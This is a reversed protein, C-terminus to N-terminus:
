FKVLMGTQIVAASFSDGASGYETVHGTYQIFTQLKDTTNHTYGLLTYSNSKMSTSALTDHHESDVSAMGYGLTILGKEGVATQFTLWYGSEKIEDSVVGSGSMSVAAGVGLANLNNLAQGQYFEGFLKSKGFQTLFYVKNFYAEKNGGSVYGDALEYNLTAGHRAFGVTFQDAKYHVDIAVGPSSGLENHNVGNANDNKGKGSLALTYSMKSKNYTAGLEEMLFGTNGAQFGNGVFNFSGIGKIGAASTWKQGIFVLLEDTFQHQVYALRTRPEQSQLATQNNFGDEGDIMDFEIVGKTKGHTVNFSFRSQATQFSTASSELYKKKQPDSDDTRLAKTTAVHSYTTGYSGVAASSNVVEAKVFGKFEINMSFANISFFTLGLCILKQKM